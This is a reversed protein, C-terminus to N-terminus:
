GVLGRVVLRFIGEALEALPYDRKSLVWSTVVEDITGFIMKRALKVDVDCRIAGVQQGQRIIGEIVDFYEQLPDTIAKRISPDSQRLEIQTVLALRRNAGLQTLHMKILREIQGEVDPEEILANKITAVFDGMKDRFLSVLVDEKSEFYLYVTGDAVGAERAIDSVRARHYGYRAFVEVAAEIISQYKDGSRKGM